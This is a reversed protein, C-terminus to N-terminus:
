DRSGLSRLLDDDKSNGATQDDRSGLRILLEDGSTKRDHYPELTLVSYNSIKHTDNNVGLMELSGSKSKKQEDKEPDLKQKQLEDLELSMKELLAMLQDDDLKRIEDKDAEIRKQKKIEDENAKEQLEDVKKEKEEDEANLWTIKSQPHKSIFKEELIKNCEGCKFLRM